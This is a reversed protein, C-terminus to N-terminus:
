DDIRQGTTEDLLLRGDQPHDFDFMNIIPGAIADASGQGIRRGHLWNDEIFRIISAQDTVTHDVFNTRAFPSIVLFPQRPGYGCRTQQPATAGTAAPPSQKPNSGCSYLGALQDFPGQSQIVIPSVVHDYWGDSDDYLIVVATSRWGPLQQLRNLTNVLFVQEDLPNSYGAHGDQYGPAKLFSVAPQQGAEAAAWFDGLDYQHNAQDTKGIMGVSSPPIHTPNATSVYYQFPEHHPIYDVKASCPTPSCFQGTHKQGCAPKGDATHFGGNFWGWTIGADNLLNGINRGGMGVNDRTTCIDYAGQPDDWVTSTGQPTSDAPNGAALTPCATAVPPYAENSLGCNAGYTNGSVLNLAGPTSPGFGTSYSNDNMAFRQAYNWLATVTNGDYYDMVAFNPQARGTVSGICAWDPVGGGTFEVFKDMLGHDYALQEHGYDHDQDCTHSQNRALRQPNSKNPNSYLLVASPDRFNGLGNVTPTRPSATFAPEGPPNLAWPYTAFYHDFSVNEQFIVVLHKIPTATAAPDDDGAARLTAPGSWMVALSMAAGALMLGRRKLAGM